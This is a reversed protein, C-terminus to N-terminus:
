WKGDRMLCQSAYTIMQPNNAIDAITTITQGFAASIEAAVGALYEAHVLPAGSADREAMKATIHSMFQAMDLQGAPPPPPPAAVVPEPVPAPMPVPASVPLPAPAPPAVPEPAAVPMPPAPMAAPPAVPLPAPAPMPVPSPTRARLEAEIAALEAGKPGGRRKKWTKDDNQGKTGSHIREDWPLGAADVAPANVNVPGTGDDEDPALPAGPLTPSAALVEPMVASAGAPLSALIQALASASGEIMLTLKM